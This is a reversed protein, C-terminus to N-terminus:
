ITKRSMDYILIDEQNIAAGFERMKPLRKSPLDRVYRHELVAGYDSLLETTIQANDFITNLLVRKGIVIAIKESTVRVMEKLARYYDYYFAVAELQTRKNGDIKIILKKLTSSPPSPIDTRNGVWGLTNSKTATIDESKWGLWYLM